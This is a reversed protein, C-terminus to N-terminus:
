SAGSAARTYPGRAIHAILQHGAELRIEFPLATNQSMALLHLGETDYVGLNSALDQATSILQQEPNNAQTTHPDSSKCFSDFCLCVVILNKKISLAGKRRTTKHYHCM